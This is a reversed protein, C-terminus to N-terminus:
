KKLPIWPPWAADEDMRKLFARAWNWEWYIFVRSDSCKQFYERARARDGEALRHMAILFYAECQEMRSRGAAELLQEESSLGCNFDIYKSYWNDHSPLQSRISSLQLSAKVAENRQGLFLPVLPACLRFISDSRMELAESVCARARALGDPMGALVFGREIRSLSGGRQVAREAAELAHELDGRRYLLPVLRFETGQRSMEYADQEEGVYEFYWFCVKHAIPLSSRKLKEVDRRSQELTQKADWGRDLQEYIVSAILHAYIGQSLVFPNDPLMGRAIHADELAMEADRADTLFLARNARAEARAVRAIVSDRRRVAEDLTQTRARGIPPVQGEVQGKFLFDEATKPTLTNLVREVEQMRPTQGTHYYAMTLMAHAAVNDPILRVAQELHRIAADTDGRYLAVQGGLMHVQGTSAGLLEAESIEKEAEKFDGSMAAMLAKELANQRRQAQLQEEHALQEARRQEQSLRNRYAFVGAASIAILALALVSAITLTVKNRQAFKRLRYRASPPCALVPEDALYRQVDMAFGNATEYRRNRDKELAKMVIWDLEGKVLKMLKAPELGRNAAIAPLEEARDLRTSPRPPEEERVARLLELWPEEKLRKRELPTTGTLLEYLVVGLAYIDSRTDIDLQRPEAQEPSMYELTGVVVGVETVGAQGALRKGTAKAVGFDIVKPVPLGDYPAVLINSPKLDRHIVGKTHAHQVARCVPVFLELRERPTLRREDCYRTIPTGRVLEMVFYPRGDPAAGADLVKAIHPHDMLALAQREAGFRGLVQRSDMGPKLLKVAVQRQVPEHQQALWVTGMGGEGLPEVLTYRGALVVGARDVGCVVRTDGQGVPTPGEAEPPACAAMGVSVAPQELFTGARDYVQLLGEVRARLATDAGCAQHVYARRAAADPQQLAGIFIDRETM